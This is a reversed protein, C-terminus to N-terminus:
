RTRFFGTLVSWCMVFRFLGTRAPLVVALCFFFCSGFPQRMMARDVSARSKTCTTSCAFTEWTPAVPCHCAVHLFQPCGPKMFFLFDAKENAFSILWLMNHLYHCARLCLPPPPPPEAVARWRGGGSGSKNCGNFNGVCDVWSFLWPSDRWFYWGEHFGPVPPSVKVKLLPFRQPFQKPPPEQPSWMNSQVSHEMMSCTFGHSVTAKESHSRPDWKTHAAGRVEGRLWAVESTCPRKVGISGALSCKDKISFFFTANCLASSQENNKDGWSTSWMWHILTQRDRNTDHRQRHRRRRTFEWEREREWAVRIVHQWIKELHDRLSALSTSLPSSPTLPRRQGFRVTCLGSAGLWRRSAGGPWTRVTPISWCWLPLLTIWARLTGSRPTTSPTSSCFVSSRRSGPRSWRQTQSLASLIMRSRRWLTRFATWPWVRFDNLWTTGHKFWLAGCTEEAAVSVRRRFGSDLCADFGLRWRRVRWVGVPVYQLTCVRSTCSPLTYLLHYWDVQCHYSFVCLSHNRQQTNRGPEFSRTRSFRGTITHWPYGKASREGVGRVKSGGGNALLLLPQSWCCREKHQLFERQFM